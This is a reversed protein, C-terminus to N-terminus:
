AASQNANVTDVVKLKQRVEDPLTQRLAFYMIKNDVVLKVMYIEKWGTFLSGKKTEIEIEKIDKLLIQRELPLRQVIM